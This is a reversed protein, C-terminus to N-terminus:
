RDSSALKWLYKRIDWWMHIKELITLKHEVNIDNYIMIKEYKIISTFEAQGVVDLIIETLVSYDDNVVCLNIRDGFLARLGTNDMLLMSTLRHEERLGEIDNILPKYKRYKKLLEM